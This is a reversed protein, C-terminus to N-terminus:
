PYRSRIDNFIAEGRDPGLVKKLEVYIKSWEAETPMVPTHVEPEEHARSDATPASVMVVFSVVGSEAVEEMTKSDGIVKGKILFRLNCIEYGHDSLPGDPDGLLREKVSLITDNSHVHDLILSFKPNRVSKVSVKVESITKSSEDSKTKRKAVPMQPLLVVPKAGLTGPDVVYDDSLKAPGKVKLLHLYAKVFTQEDITDSTTSSM